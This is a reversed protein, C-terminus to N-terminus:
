GYIDVVESTTLIMSGVGVTLGGTTPNGSKYKGSMPHHTVYTLSKLHPMFHTNGQKQNFVDLVMKGFQTPPSLTFDTTHHEMVDQVTKENAAVEYIKEIVAGNNKPHFRVDLFRDPVKKILADMAATADGEAKQYKKYYVGFGATMGVAVVGVTSLTSIMVLKKM